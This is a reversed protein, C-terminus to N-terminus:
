FAANVAHLYHHNGVISKILEPSMDNVIAYLWEKLQNITKFLQNKIGTKLGLGSKNM